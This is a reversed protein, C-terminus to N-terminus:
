HASGVRRRRPLAARRPARHGRRRRRTAAREAKQATAQRLARCPLPRRGRPASVGSALGAAETDLARERGQWEDSRQNNDQRPLVHSSGQQRDTNSSLLLSNISILYRRFYITM